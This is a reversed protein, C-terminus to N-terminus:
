RGALELRRTLPDRRYVGEEIVRDGFFETYEILGAHLVEVLVTRPGARWEFAIKGDGSPAVSRPAPDGQGQVDLAFDISTELVEPSPVFDPDFLSAAERKWRLLEDILSQWHEADRSPSGTALVDSSTSRTESRVQLPPTAVLRQYSVATM